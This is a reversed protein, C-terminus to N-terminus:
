RNRRLSGPSSITGQFSGVTTRTAPDFLREVDFSGTARAFRGTGGTITATGVILRIGPTPAASAQGEFDAFVEDGNAAVFRFSGTVASTSLDIFHPHEWAIGGLHTTKGTGETLAFVIPPNVVITTAVGAIRGRFPIQDAAALPRVLGLGTLIVVALRITHLHQKV